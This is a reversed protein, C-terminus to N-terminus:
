LMNEALERAITVFTKGPFNREQPTLVKEFLINKDKFKNECYYRGTARCFNDVKSCKSGTFVMTQNDELLVGMISARPYNVVKPNQHKPHSTEDGNRYFITKHVIKARYPSHYYFTNKM